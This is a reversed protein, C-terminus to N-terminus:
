SIERRVVGLTHSKPNHRSNRRPRHGATWTVDPARQYCVMALAILSGRLVVYVCLAAIFIKAARGYESRGTAWDSELSSRENATEVSYLKM